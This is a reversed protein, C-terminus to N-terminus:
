LHSCEPCETQILRLWDTIEKVHPLEDAEDAIKQYRLASFRDTIFLSPYLSHRTEDIYTFRASDEGKMDFLLPFRIDEKEAFAEADKLGDFSIALVEAEEAQVQPYVANIERLKASCCPCKFGHHFFLVLNKRQKFDWLNVNVNDKKNSPLSLYPLVEYLILKEPQTPM